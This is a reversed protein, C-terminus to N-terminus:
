QTAYGLQFDRVQSEENFRFHLSLTTGFVNDPLAYEGTMSDEWRYFGIPYKAEVEARSDRVSIERATKITGGNARILAIESNSRWVLLTFGEYYYRVYQPHTEIDEISEPEGYVGVVEHISQGLSAIKEGTVAHFVTFDERSLVGTPQGNAFGVVPIWLLLGLMAMSLRDRM